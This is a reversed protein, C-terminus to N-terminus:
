RRWHAVEVERKVPEWTWEARYRDIWNVPVICVSAWLAAEEPSINLAFLAYILVAFPLTFFWGEKITRLLPPIQDEPVPAINKM